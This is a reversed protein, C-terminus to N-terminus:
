VGYIMVTNEISLTEDTIVICGSRGVGSQRLEDALLIKSVGLKTLDNRTLKERIDMFIDASTVLFLNEPSQLIRIKEKLCELISERSKESYLFSGSCDMSSQICVVGVKYEESVTYDHVKGQAKESIILQAEGHVTQQAEDICENISEVLGLVVCGLGSPETVLQDELGNLRLYTNINDRVQDYTLEKM